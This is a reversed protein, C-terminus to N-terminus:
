SLYKQAASLERRGGQLHTEDFKFRSVLEQLNVTLRNMDEAAKAIQEVGAASQQSVSSIGEINKSIQEAAASQQESAAAVQMAMNNTKVSGDLIDQLVKDVEETMQMGEVVFQKSEEMSSNAVKAEEQISRVTDAIEKTAKTTREALKRVEDAVVAFGRGQEGARAAEIAANLALLNTQDAIDDIVQTIQGIQETRGTLSSVVDAAKRSSEVIKNMGDKTDKIKKAGRVATDQSVKSLEAADNASQTAHLITKTMEEVASAIECTQQAQEQAGSSMEESSASIENAASATAHVSEGVERMAQAMSEGLTNVNNEFKIYNGKSGSMRVTFDGKSMAELVNYSHKVPNILAEITSNVGVMIEKFGGNFKDANGRVYVNGNMAESIVDKLEDHLNRLTATINNLAPALVDESDYAPVTISVDGNSIAHMAGAFAELQVTFKDLSEGMLGIEDKSDINARYNVHGKKLESALVFLKSVSTTILKTIYTSMIIAFAVGLITFLLIISKSSSSLDENRGSLEEGRKVKFDAMAKIAQLEGNANESMEYLLAERGESKSKSMSELTEVKQRYLDRKENFQTLLAQGESSHFSPTLSDVMDVIKGSLEKRKEILNNIETENESNGMHVILVRVEGFKRSLEELQGLPRAVRSYLESDSESMKGMNIYSIVGIVLMLVTVISFGLYLKNGIKMDKIKTM